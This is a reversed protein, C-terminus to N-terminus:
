KCFEGIDSIDLDPNKLFEVLEGKLEFWEGHIYYEFFRHQYYKEVDRHAQILRRLMLQNPNSSQLGQLRDNVKSASNLECLGIKIHQDGSQLFYICNSAKENLIFFDAISYDVKFVSMQKLIAWKDPKIGLIETLKNIDKEAGFELMKRRM